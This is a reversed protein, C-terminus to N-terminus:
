LRKQLSEFAEKTLNLWNYKEVAALANDQHWTLWQEDYRMNYAHHMADKLSEDDLKFVQGPHVEQWPSDMMTTKVLLDPHIFDEYPLVGTGAIIPMGTAIAQLGPLGFGETQVNYLMADCSYYYDVLDDLPIIKSNIEIHPTDFLTFGELNCKLCLTSETQRMSELFTGIAQQAGKRLAEGGHHLMRFRETPTRQRGYWNSDVGHELVYVPARVGADVFWQAVIPSPTWVEDATNMKELWGPKLETSEWPVYMIRYQDKNWKVFDPMDFWFNVQAGPFRTTHEVTHGLTRLCDVVHGTAYGYGNYSSMLDIDVHNGFAIKM